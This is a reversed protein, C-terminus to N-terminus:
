CGRRPRWWRDLDLGPIDNLLCALAACILAAYCGLLAATIWGNSRSALREVILLPSAIQALIIAAFLLPSLVAAGGQTVAAFCIALLTVVVGLERFTVQRSRSKM